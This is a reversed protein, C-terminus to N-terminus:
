PSFHILNSLPKLLLFSHVMGIVREAGLDKILDEADDKEWDFHALAM